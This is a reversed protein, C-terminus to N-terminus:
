HLQKGLTSEMGGIQAAEAETRQVFDYVEPLTVVAAQSFVACAVHMRHRTACHVCSMMRSELTKLSCRKDAPQSTPAHHKVCPRWKCKSAALRPHQLGSLRLALRASARQSIREAVDDDSLMRVM